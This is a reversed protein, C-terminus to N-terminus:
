KDWESSHAKLWLTLFDFSRLRSASRIHNRWRPWGDLLRTFGLFRLIDPYSGYELLREAAWDSDLRGIKINGDLLSRFAAEDLDYDWIYPLNM